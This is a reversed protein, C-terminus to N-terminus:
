NSVASNIGCRALSLTLVFTVHRQYLNGQRSMAEGVAASQAGILGSVVIIQYNKQEDGDSRKPRPSDARLISITVTIEERGATM